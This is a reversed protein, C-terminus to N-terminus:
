AAGQLARRSRRAPRNERWWEREGRLRGHLGVMPPHSHDAKPGDLVIMVVHEEGVKGRAMEPPMAVFALREAEGILPRRVDDDGSHEVAAAARDLADDRGLSRHGCAAACSRPSEFGRGRGRASRSRADTAPDQKADGNSRAGARV